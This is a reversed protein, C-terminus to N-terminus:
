SCIPAPPPPPSWSSSPTATTSTTTRTARARRAATRRRTALAHRRHTCGDRRRPVPRRLGGRQLPGRRPVRRVAHAGRPRAEVGAGVSRDGAGLQHRRRADRPAVGTVFTAHNPYTASTMVSRPGAVPGAAPAPWSPWCRAHARRGVHRVPLADISTFVVKVGAAGRLRRHAVGARSRGPSTRAFAARKEAYYEARRDGERAANYTPYLARRPRESRNAGSRHPTRSHFWLTCGAPVDVPRWTSPRPSRPAHHLRARRHPARRRLLGVRGRARRQGRRRRRGRDDGVRPARDDPVRARGPAALVRRRGPAQLEGEGQLAGGARRAARRRGRAAPRPVAARPTRRARRRLARQSLAPPRRRDDRPTPAGRSADALAAVEDVWGPLEAAVTPPLADVLVWGHEAFHGVAADLDLAAVQRCYERYSNREARVRYAGAVRHDVPRWPNPSRTSLLAAPRTSRPM